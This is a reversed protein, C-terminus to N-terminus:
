GELKFINNSNSYLATPAEPAAVSTKPASVGKNLYYATLLGSNAANLGGTVLTNAASRDAALRSMNAQNMLSTSQTKYGWAERYANTKIQIIDLDGLLKSSERVNQASGSFADIGSAASTLIQEGELNRLRRKLEAAEKNGREIADAAAIESYSSQIRLQSSQYRGMEKQLSANSFATGLSFMGQIAQITALSTEPKM